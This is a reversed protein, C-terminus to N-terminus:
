PNEILYKKYPNMGNATIISQLTAINRIFGYLFDGALYAELIIINIEIIMVM